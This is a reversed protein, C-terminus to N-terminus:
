SHSSIMTSGRAHDLFSFQDYYEGLHVILHVHQLEVVCLKVLRVNGAHAFSYALYKELKTLAEAGYEGQAEARSGM